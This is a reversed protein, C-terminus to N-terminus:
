AAQMKQSQEYGPMSTLRDQAGISVLCLCVVCLTLPAIRRRCISAVNNLAPKMAACYIYSRRVNLPVGVAPLATKKRQSNDTSQQTNVPSTANSQEVM